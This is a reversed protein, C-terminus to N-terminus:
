RCGGGLAQERGGWHKPFTQNQEDDWRFSPDLAKLDNFTLDSSEQKVLGEATSFRRAPIVPCFAPQDSRGQLHQAGTPAAEAAISKLLADFILLM